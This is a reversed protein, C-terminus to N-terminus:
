LSGFLAFDSSDCPSFLLSVGCMGKGRGIECACPSQERLRGGSLLLVMRVRKEEEKIIVMKEKRKKKILDSSHMSFCVWVIM